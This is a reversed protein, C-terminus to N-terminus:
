KRIRVAILAVDGNDDIVETELPAYTTLQWGYESPVIVLVAEASTRAAAEVQTAGEFRVPEGDAGYQLRGAGYYEATREITHLHYIPSLKYGRADAQELAHAISVHRSIREIGCELGVIIVLFMGCMISATALWGRKAMLLALLGGAILPLAGILACTTVAYGEQMVYIVVGIGLL